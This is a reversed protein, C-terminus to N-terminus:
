VNLRYKVENLLFKIPKQKFMFSNFDTNSLVPFEYKMEKEVEGTPEKFDQITMYEDLTLRYKKIVETSKDRYHYSFGSGKSKMNMIVAHRDENSSNPHSGHVLRHNFLVAEGAKLQVVESHADLRHKFNEFFYPFSPSVRLSQIMQHSRPVVKLAGNTEDVDRLAIWLNASIYKSEDVLNLDQHFDVKCANQPKTLFSSMIADYEVLFSDLKPLIIGKLLRDIERVLTSDDKNVFSRLKTDEWQMDRYIKDHYSLIKVLDTQDLLAIKVYGEQEFMKQSEQSQFKIM